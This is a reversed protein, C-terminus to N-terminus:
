IIPPNEDEAVSEDEPESVDIYERDKFEEKKGNNWYQIPSYYGVVRSYVLCPIARAPM